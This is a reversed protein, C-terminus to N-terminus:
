VPLHQHIDLTLSNVFGNFQTCTKEFKQEASPDTISMLWRPFLQRTLIGGLSYNIENVNTDHM